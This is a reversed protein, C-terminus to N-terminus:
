LNNVVRHIGNKILTENFNILLGLKISTLRLYTLLQKYHVQALAEVSKTEIIVKSNVVLDARFGHDLKREKWIVPVAKQREVLLGREILEYVLIDEYVSEFLGPGLQQHIAFAIDVIIRSIENETM